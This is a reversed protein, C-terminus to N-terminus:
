CTVIPGVQQLADIMSALDPRAAVICRTYGPVAAAVSIFLHAPRDAEKALGAKEALGAFVTASRPSFHLVADIDAARLGNAAQEPLTKQAASEYTEVPLVVFAAGLNRLAADRREVGALYAFRGGGPNARSIVMALDHSDGRASHITRFGLRAAEEATADGVTFVPISYHGAVLRAHRLANASTVIFADVSGPVRHPLPRIEFLPAVLPQHGAARLAEATRQSDEIPRTVLVRM